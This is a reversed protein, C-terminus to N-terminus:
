LSNTRQPTCSIRVDTKTRFNISWLRTPLGELKWAEVWSSPKPLDAAAAPAHGCRRSM